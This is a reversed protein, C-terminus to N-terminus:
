TRYDLRELCERLGERWHVLRPTELHESRLVSYAPRPAPRGLEEASIPVVRCAIRAEEFITEALEAWTCDGEAAVHYTRDPLQLVKKTAEALHRVYTPSGRQDDVVRVEHQERGLELMTRVFNKGTPGFLWSSRIVWGDRIEREGELKTRGYVSLPNPEDSEVYPEGKTGDFVYDTSVYVVKAEVLAAAVAVNRAGDANVAMAAPLDDEAEDVNTFAACNIVAHPRETFFCSHVADADSVDLEAHALAVVEHNVFSAARVVDSGLMGSSGTVLVKM